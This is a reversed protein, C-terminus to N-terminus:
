FEYRVSLMYQRPNGYFGTRVGTSPIVYGTTLYKKDALNTGQLSVSWPGGSKWIAGASFLGYGDQHIPAVVAHSVPDRTVETTATVEAQYAYTARVSFEGAAGVPTRYEANFAGSFDPANTFEQQDAINFGKFLYEDFRADLWALNGTFAWHETPRVQWELEAGDVTGQGANTFDGCFTTV